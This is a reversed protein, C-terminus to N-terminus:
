IESVTVTEAPETRPLTHSGAGPKSTGESGRGRGSRLLPHPRQGDDLRDRITPSDLLVTVHANPELNISADGEKDRCFDVGQRKM